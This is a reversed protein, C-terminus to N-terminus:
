VELEDWLKDLGKFFNDVITSYAGYGFEVNLPQSYDVEPTTPTYQIPPKKEKEKYEDLGPARYFRYKRRKSKDWIEVHGSDTMTGIFMEGQVLELLENNSCRVAYITTDNKAPM